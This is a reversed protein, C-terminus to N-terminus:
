HGYHINIIKEVKSAGYIYDLEAFKEEIIKLFNIKSYSLEINLNKSHSLVDMIFRDLRTIREGILQIYERLNDDNKELSSLHVLGLTSSLPSRLDHSVKYVFNDLEENRIKLEDEVKKSARMDVYIGYIAIVKDNLSVPVGHIM